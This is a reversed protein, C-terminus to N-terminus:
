QVLVASEEPGQVQSSQGSFEMLGELQKNMFSWKKRSIQKLDCLLRLGIRLRDVFCAIEDKDISERRNLNHHVQVTMFFSDDRLKDALGYKYGKAVKVTSRYVELCFDYSDSFLILQETDDNKTDRVKVKKHLLPPDDAAVALDFLSMQSKPTNQVANAIIERKWAKFGDLEKCGSIVIHNENLVQWHLGKELAESQLDELNGKPFGLWVMESCIKQVFRSHVKYTRFLKVFYFASKEWAQWFIRDRVLHIACKNSLEITYIEEM